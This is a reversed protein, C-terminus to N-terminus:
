VTSPNIFFTDNYFKTFMSFSVIMVRNYVAINLPSISHQAIYLITNLFIFNLIVSVNRQKTNFTEELLNGIELIYKDEKSNVLMPQNQVCLSCIM